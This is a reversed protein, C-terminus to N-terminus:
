KAPLIHFQKQLIGLTLLLKARIQTSNMNEILVNSFAVKAEPMHKNFEHNIDETIKDLDERLLPKELYGMIFPYQKTKEKDKSSVSSSLIYFLFKDKQDSELNSIKDFLEWGSMQPMNLDVLTIYKKSDRNKRTTIFDWGQYPDVFIHLSAEPLIDIWLLKNILMCFPDDDILVVDYKKSNLM